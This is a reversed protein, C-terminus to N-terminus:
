RAGSGAEGQGARGEGGRLADLLLALMRGRAGSQFGDAAHTAAFILRLDTVTADARIAGAGRARDLLAQWALSVRDVANQVEPRDSTAALAARVLHNQAQYEVLDRLTEELVAGPEARGDAALIRERVSHMQEVVIAAILEGKSGYCRYLSGVGIGAAAAIAPMPAELGQETFVASAVGRLRRRKDDPDLDTWAETEAVVAHPIMM